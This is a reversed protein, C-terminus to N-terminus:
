RAFPRLWRRHEEEFVQVSAGVAVRAREAARALLPLKWQLIWGFDVRDEPFAPRGALDAATLLGEDALRDLSILLPNGAFASFSQYPSDGYGRPGLPLVRWLKQGPSERSVIWEYEAPGCGGIGNPGPLSTPHLLIGSSRPFKM